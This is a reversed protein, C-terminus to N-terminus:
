QVGATVVVENDVDDDTPRSNGNSGAAAFGNLHAAAPEPQEYLRQGNQPSGSRRPGSNFFAAGDPRSLMRSQDVVPTLSTEQPIQKLSSPTLSNITSLSSRKVLDRLQRVPMTQARSAIPSRDRLLAATPLQQLHPRVAAVPPAPAVGPGRRPLLLGPVFGNSAAAVLRVANEGAAAPLSRRRDFYPDM